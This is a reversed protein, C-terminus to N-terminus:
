RDRKIKAFRQKLAVAYPGLASEKKQEYFGMFHIVQRKLDDIASAPSDGFVSINLKENEAFWYADELYVKISLPVGDVSFSWLPYTTKSVKEGLVSCIDLVDEGTQKSSIDRFAPQIHSDLICSGTSDAYDAELLAESMM